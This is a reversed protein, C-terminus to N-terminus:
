KNEKKYGANIGTKKNNVEQSPNEKDPWDNLDHIRGHFVYCISILDYYIHINKLYVM